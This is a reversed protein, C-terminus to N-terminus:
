REIEYDSIKIDMTKAKEGLHNILIVAEDKQLRTNGADLYIIIRAKM